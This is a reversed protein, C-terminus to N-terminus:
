LLLQLPREILQKFCALLQAGVAGDIARHDFSGTVSMQTAVAIQDDLVVARKEAAGVALISAQPPNIVADFQRVGFMGLNSLSTSGGQYEHGMLRGARAREIFDHMEAAITVVSKAGADRVVPTVLGTPAAVAVAVDARSYRHLSDDAFRVNADATRQLACGLARILLDNVSVKQTQAANVQARLRLLEDVNVDVTLYFHPITRKSEGLRRAITRRMASLAAVTHPPEYSPTTTMTTSAPVVPPAAQAPARGAAEVDAKVIRGGPGSGHLNALDVKWERAVRRAIPSAKIRRTPQRTSAQEAAAVTEGPRSLVAIVDGVAVPANGAEVLIRAIVGDHEAELEMTAKESEIEAIPQGSRVPQGQTVLWRALQGAAVNPGISPMTINTPM